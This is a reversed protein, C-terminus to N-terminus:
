KLVRYIESLLVDLDNLFDIQQENPLVEKNRIHTHLYQDAIKRSSANLNKM